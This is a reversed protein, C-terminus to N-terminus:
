ENGDGLLGSLNDFDTTVEVKQRRSKVVANVYEDFNSKRFLTSPRLYEETFFHNPDDAHAVKNDIAQKFDDLDYGENWRARILDKNGSAKHNFNRDAQENLYSIIEKYPVVDSKDSQSSQEVIEKTKTTTKPYDITITQENQVISGARKSYETQENQVPPRNMGEIVQYDISYWKTNDIALKNYNGAIVIKQDECSKITRRITSRSWFPFQEEWDKYSNYIWLRGDRKKASKGNLWYHLQQVFIAENLGVKKALKPLVLIPYDDILLKSM